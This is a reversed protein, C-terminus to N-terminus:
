QASRQLLSETKNAAEQWHSLQDNPTNNSRIKKRYRNLLITLKKRTVEDLNMKDLAELVQRPHDSRRAVVYQGPDELILEFTYLDVVLLTVIILIGLGIKKFM